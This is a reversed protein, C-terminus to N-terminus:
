NEKPFINKLFDDPLDDVNFGYEDLIYKKIVPNRLVAMRVRESSDKRLILLLDETSIFSQELLTLRTEAKGEVMLKRKLEEPFNPHKVLQAITYDIDSYQAFLDVLVKKTTNPNHVFGSLREGYIVQIADTNKKISSFYIEELLEPPATPNKLIGELSNALMNRSKAVSWLAEVPTSPNRMANQQITGSATKTLISLIEPKTQKNKALILQNTNPLRRLFDKLNRTKEKEKVQEMVVFWRADTTTSFHQLSCARQTANCVAPQGYKNIHYEPM